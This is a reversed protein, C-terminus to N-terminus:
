EAAKTIWSVIKEGLEESQGHFSHDADPVLGFVFEGDGGKVQEQLIELAQEGSKEPAYEDNEGYVVLSPRKLNKFYRFLSQQSLNINKHLCEYFPFTNYDGDPLCVDYFSQYSIWFDIISKPVLERGHGAEIMDKAQRLYSKFQAENEGLMQYFIGTDDGGSLLVYGRILNEEEPQYHDYVCIKNAGSSHGLLYFEDYGQGQLFNIAGNIDHVCDKILEYATGLKVENRKGPKFDPHTEAYNISKIYHAGRNNFTFFGIQKDTFIKALAQAREVSYFVSASGNGHLFIAAKKTKKQPAFLLGPLLLHDTTPFQFLNTQM